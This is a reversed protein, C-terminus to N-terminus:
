SGTDWTGVATGWVLLKGNGGALSRGVARSGGQEGWGPPPALAHHARLYRRSMPRRRRGDHAPQAPGRTGANGPLPRGPCHRRSRGATLPSRCRPRCPRCRKHPRSAPPWSSAHASHGQKAQTHPFPHPTLKTHLTHASRRWPGLRTYTEEHPPGRTKWSLATPRRWTSSSAASHHNWTSRTVALPQGDRLLDAM